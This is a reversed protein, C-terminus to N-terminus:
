QNQLISNKYYVPWGGLEKAIRHAAMSGGELTHWVKNGNPANIDATTGKTVHIRIWWWARRGPYTKRVLEVRKDPKKM